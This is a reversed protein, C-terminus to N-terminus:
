FHSAGPSRILCHSTLFSISALDIRREVLQTSGFEGGRSPPPKHKRALSLYYVSLNRSPLNEWTLHAFEGCRLHSTTVQFPCSTWRGRTNYTSPSSALPVSTEPIRCVEGHGSLLLQGEPLHSLLVPNPFSPGNASICCSLALSVAKLMSCLFSCCGFVHHMCLDSIILPDDKAQTFESDALRIVM